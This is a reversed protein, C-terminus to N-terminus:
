MSPPTFDVGEKILPFHDELPLLLGHSTLGDSQVIVIVSAGLLGSIKEVQKALAEAMAAKLPLLRGRRPARDQLPLVGVLTRWSTAM